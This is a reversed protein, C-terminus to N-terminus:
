PNRNSRLEMGTPKTEDATEDATGDTIAMRNSNSNSSDSPFKGCWDRSVNQIQKCMTRSSAFHWPTDPNSRIAVRFSQHFSEIDHCHGDLLEAAKLFTWRWLRQMLESSSKIQRQCRLTWGKDARRKSFGFVHNAMELRDTHSRRDDGLMLSATPLRLLRGPGKIWTWLAACVCQARFVNIRSEHKALAEAFSDCGLCKWALKMIRVSDNLCASLFQLCVTYPSKVLWLIDFIKPTAPRPNPDKVNIRQM